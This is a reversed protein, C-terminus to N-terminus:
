KIPRLALTDPIEFQLRNVTTRCRDVIGIDHELALKVHAANASRNGNVIRNQKRKKYGNLGLAGVGEFGGPRTRPKWIRISFQCM